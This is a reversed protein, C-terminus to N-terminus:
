WQERCPASATLIGARVVRTTTGAYVFLTVTFLAMTVGANSVPIVFEAVVLQGTRTRAARTVDQSNDGRRDTRWLQCFCLRRLTEVDRRNVACDDFESACALATRISATADRWQIAARLEAPEHNLAFDGTDCTHQVHKVRQTTRDRFFSGSGLAEWAIEIRPLLKEVTGAGFESQFIMREFATGGAAARRWCEYIGAYM